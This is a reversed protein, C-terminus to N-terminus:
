VGFTGSVRTHMKMHVYTRGGINQVDRGHIQCPRLSTCDAGLNTGHRRM